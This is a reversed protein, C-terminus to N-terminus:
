DKRFPYRKNAIEMQKAYEKAGIQGIQSRLEVSATRLYSQAPYNPMDPRGYEVAAGYEIATGCKGQFDKTEPQIKASQPAPTGGGHQNFGEDKGKITISISNKLAGTDVITNDVAKSELALLMKYVSANVVEPSVFVTYDRM